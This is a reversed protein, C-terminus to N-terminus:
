LTKISGNLEEGFLLVAVSATALPPEPLHIGVFGAFYIIASVKKYLVSVYQSRFALFQM